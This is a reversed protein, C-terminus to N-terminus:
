NSLINELDKLQKDFEDEASDLNSGSNSEELYARAEDESLDFVKMINELISGDGYNLTCLMKVVKRIDEARTEQREEKREERVLARTAAEQSFMEINIM